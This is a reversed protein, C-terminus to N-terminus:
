ACCTLVPANCSALPQSHKLSCLPFIQRVNEAFNEYRVKLTKRERQSMKQVNKDLEPDYVAKYGKPEGPGPRASARPRSTDFTPQVHSAARPPSHTVNHHRIQHQDALRKGPSTSKSRSPSSDANTLPTLSTTQHPGANNTVNMPQHNSSFVSSATSTSSASGVGNLLDGHVTEGDEQVNSPPEVKMRGNEGSRTAADNGGRSAGSPSAARGHFTHTSNRDAYAPSRPERRAQAARSKKQQLVSPATPFFDAFGKSSRSM